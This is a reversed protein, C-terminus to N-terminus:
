PAESPGGVPDPGPTGDEKYLGDLGLAGLTRRAFDFRRLSVRDRWGFALEEPDPLAGARRPTLAFGGSRAAPIGALEREDGLLLSEYRVLRLDPSTLPAAQFLPVYNEVCWAAVGREFPDHPPDELLPRLKPHDRCLVDGQALFDNLGDHWGLRLRSEAVACPHRLLFVCKMGPFVRLMWGLMLNARVEKVLRKRALICRNYRGSWRSASRGALIDAVPSMYAPYSGEPRLYPRKTHRRALRELEPNREPNFPEFVYRLGSRSAMEGSLWSTGSRASGLLLTADRHDGGLDLCRGGVIRARM